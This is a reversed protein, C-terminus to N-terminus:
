AAVEAADGARGGVRYRQHVRETEVDHQDLRDADSLGLDFDGLDGVRRQDCQLGAAAIRDLDELRPDELDGVHEDDVLAIM